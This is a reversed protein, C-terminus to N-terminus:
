KMFIKRFAKGNSVQLTRTSGYGVMREDYLPTVAEVTVFFPEYGLKPPDSEHSVHLSLRNGRWWRLHIM